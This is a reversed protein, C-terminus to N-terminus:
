MFIIFGVTSSAVHHMSLMKTKCWGKVKDFIIMNVCFTLQSCNGISKELVVYIEKTM